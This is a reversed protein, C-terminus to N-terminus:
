ISALSANFFRAVSFIEFSCFNKRCGIVARTVTDSSFSFCWTSARM